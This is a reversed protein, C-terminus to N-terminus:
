PKGTLRTLAAEAETAAKEWEPARAVLEARKRDDVTEGSEGTGARCAAAKQLARLHVAQLESVRWAVEASHANIEAELGRIGDIVQSPRDSHRTVTQWMQPWGPQTGAVIVTLAVIAVVLAILSMIVGIRHWKNPEAM